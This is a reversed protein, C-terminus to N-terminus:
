RTARVPQAARRSGARAILARLTGALSTRWAPHALRDGARRADSVSFQDKMADVAVHAAIVDFM